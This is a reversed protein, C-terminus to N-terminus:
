PWDRFRQCLRAGRSGAACERAQPRPPHNRRQPRRSIRLRYAQAPARRSLAASYQRAAVGRAAIRAVPADLSLALQRGARLQSDAPHPGRQPTVRASRYRAHNGHLAYEGGRQALLGQAGRAVVVWSTARSVGRGTIRRRDTRRGSVRRRDQGRAGRRRRGYWEGDGSAM